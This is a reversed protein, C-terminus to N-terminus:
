GAAPGQDDTNPATLTPFAGADLPVTAVWFQIAVRDGESGASACFSVFLGMAPPGHGDQIHRNSGAAPMLRQWVPEPREGTTKHNLSTM